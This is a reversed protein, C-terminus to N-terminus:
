SGLLNKVVKEAERRKTADQGIEEDLLAKFAPSGVDVDLRVCSRAFPLYPFLPELRKVEHSMLVMVKAQEFESLTKMAAVTRMSYQREQEDSALVQLALETVDIHKVVVHDPVLEAYENLEQMVVEVSKEGASSSDKGGKGADVPELSPSDGRLQHRLNVRQVARQVADPFLQELRQNAQESYEDEHSQKLDEVLKEFTDNEYPSRNDEWEKISELLKKTAERDDEDIAGLFLDLGLGDGMMRYLKYILFSAKIQSSKIELEQALYTGMLEYEEQGMSQAAEELSLLKECPLPSPVTRIKEKKYTTFFWKMEADWNIGQKRVRTNWIFEIAHVILKPNALLMKENLSNDSLQVLCQALTPIDKHYHAEMLKALTPHTFDRLEYRCGVHLPLQENYRRKFCDKLITEKDFGM